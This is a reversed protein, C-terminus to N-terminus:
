PGFRSGFSFDAGFPLIRPGMRLSKAVDCDCYFKVTLAVDCFRESQAKQLPPDCVLFNNGNWFSVPFDSELDLDPVPTM